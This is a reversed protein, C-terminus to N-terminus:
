EYNGDLLSRDRGAGNVDRLVETPLPEPKIMQRLENAANFTALNRTEGGEFERMAARQRSWDTRSEPTDGCPKM